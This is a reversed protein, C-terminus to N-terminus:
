KIITEAKIVPLTKKLNRYWYNREKKTQFVSFTTSGSGTMFSNGCVSLKDLNEKIKPVLSTSASTLDNKMVSLLSSFDGNLYYELAKDTCEEYRKGQRDYELYSDKALCGEKCPLLLFYLKKDTKFHTIIEGKGEIVATKGFLMYNVDSGLKKGLDFLDSNVNFAKKMLMLVGAVDASSGGLGGGLPIKKVITIDVGSTNFTDKFLKAARYANNNEDEPLSAGKVKLTIKDDKRNKLRVVDKLSLETVLSKLLHFGHKEGLIDLTINLKAGIKRKFVM